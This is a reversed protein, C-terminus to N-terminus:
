PLLPCHTTDVHVQQTSSVCQGNLLHTGAGCIASYDPVCDGKVKVTGAGCKIPDAQAWTAFVLVAFAAIVCGTKTLM